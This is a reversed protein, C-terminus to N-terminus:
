QPLNSLRISSLVADAPSDATSRLQVRLVDLPLDHGQGSLFAAQTSKVKLQYGSQANIKIGNSYTVSNAELYDEPVNFALKGDRAQGTIEISFGEGEDSPQDTLPRHVQIALPYDTYSILEQQGNYLSFRITTNYLAPTMNWPVGGVNSLMEELYRGGEIEL